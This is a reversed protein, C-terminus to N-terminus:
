LQGALILEIADGIFEKRASLDVGYETALQARVSKKTVSNLNQSSLIRKTSEVLQEDTPMAGTMMMGPTGGGLLASNGPVPQGYMSQAGYSVNSFMSERQQPLTNYANAGPTTRSHTNAQGSVPSSFYDTQGPSHPSGSGVSGFMGFNHLAPSAANDYYSTPNPSYQYYSASRSAMTGDAPLAVGGVTSMPRSEGAGQASQYQQQQQAQAVPTSLQLRPDFSGSGSIVTTPTGARPPGAVPTHGGYRSASGMAGSQRSYMTGREDEKSSGANPNMNPPPANLVGAAMLDSEYESWKRQPISKPDFPKDDKVILKRKGDGVVVRTNGWSFDDMHWFSYIPLICSWLPYALLYILMWGIHQWERRLIFIIAQVGYIAGILILSIYGVDALGTAAVYILYIFYGLTTPMTITGFLDLFVVFRMSFFCFGCMDPLFMLEALNHITSNIWRRRQSMLVSWKEPAITKCKADQIFKLKSMPFHKMMLTTLYRDEGLSLLNKKHLTDVHLESYAELVPKAILLPKGDASRLRYMCFCGPLCTVSGFLSEFAKAMHHSIFYEYVQMMTTWSKGENGLMTEGCIGAIRQDSSCAAILRSLSDPMVETDADVQLIYEFSHPDIGIIHRIQHFMELELPTMPLDFHVKNFFSMLLIQSDRKGRNGSRNAEEPTGVKVVVMFPVVHGEFEYLGSYVKGINHRRSGEAIALYDRGPPDYEPDVGLIDLVIRPTPKDNGSGIINGDCILFILKNNDQYELATLSNITKILSEDDETYCPVQCVVFKSPPVPRKKNGFQLATLFKVLVVLMLVCAFALLMYNTFLCRVSQRDDVDGVYFLNKMCNYNSERTAADWSIGDWDKTVDATGFGNQDMIEELRSDLINYKKNVNLGGKSADFYPQLNFVEKNIVRWYKSQDKYMSNIWDFKWVVGGKKFKQLTPLAYKAFFNPDQLKKSTPDRNMTHQFMNAQDPDVESAGQVPYFYLYNPDDKATVFQPCAVRVPIPFSANIDNGSFSQLILDMTSTYASTGHKQKMFDTVDYVTGRLAVYSSKETARGSVDDLTWVYEKPCLILGLGIIIFLLFFWMFVIMVCIAVKERWAMRVDPRKMRGCLSLLPSPIWWTLAWTTFVWLRRSTTTELDEIHEHEGKDVNGEGGTGGAPGTKNEKMALADMQAEKENGFGGPPLQANGFLMSRQTPNGAHSASVQDDFPNDVGGSRSYAMGRSGFDNVTSGTEDPRLHYHSQRQQSDM